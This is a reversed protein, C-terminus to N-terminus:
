LKTFPARRLVGVKYANNYAERILVYPFYIDLEQQTM